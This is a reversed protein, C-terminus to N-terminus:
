NSIDRYRTKRPWRYQYRYSAYSQQTSTECQGRSIERTLLRVLIKVPSPFEIDIPVTSQRKQTANVRHTTVLQLALPQGSRQWSLTVVAVCGIGRRRM